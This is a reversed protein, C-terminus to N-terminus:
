AAFTVNTHIALNATWMSYAKCSKHRTSVDIVCYKKLTIFLINSLHKTNINANTEIYNEQRM